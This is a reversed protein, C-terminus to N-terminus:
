GPGALDPHRIAPQLRPPGPQARLHRRRRRALHRDPLRSRRRRRAPSPDLAAQVGRGREAPLTSMGGLTALGDRVTLSACGLPRGDGADFAIVMGDGDIAHAAVAFADAARRAEATAHGWGLASVEQWSALDAASRVPRVVVDDPHVVAPMDVDRAFM